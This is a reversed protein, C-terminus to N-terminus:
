FVVTIQFYQVVSILVLEYLSLNTLTKSPICGSQLHFNSKLFKLFLPQSPLSLLHSPSLLILPAPPPPSLPLPLHLFLSPVRGTSWSTLFIIHNGSFCGRRLMEEMASSINWLMRYCEMINKQMSVISNEDPGMEVRKSNSSIIHQYQMSQVNFLPLHQMSSTTLGQEYKNSLGRINVFLQLWLTPFPCFHQCDM